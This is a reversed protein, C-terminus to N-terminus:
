GRLNIFGHLLQVGRIAAISFLVGLLGFKVTLVAALLVAAIAAIPVVYEYFM